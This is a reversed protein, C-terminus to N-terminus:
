AYKLNFEDIQKKTLISAHGPFGTIYHGHWPTAKAGDPVKWDLVGPHVLQWFCCWQGDAEPRCDYWVSFYRVEDCWAQVGDWRDTAMGAGVATRVVESWERVQDFSVGAGSNAAPAPPFVVLPTDRDLYQDYLAAHFGRVWDAVGDLLPAIGTFVRKLEGGSPIVTPRIPLNKLHKAPWAETPKTKVQHFLQIANDNYQKAKADCDPHVPLTVPFPANCAPTGLVARPVVHETQPKDPLRHGCLYCFRIAGYRQQM